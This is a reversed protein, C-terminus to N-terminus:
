MPSVARERLLWAQKLIELARKNNGRRELFESYHAYADSL